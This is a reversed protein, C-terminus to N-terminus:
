TKFYRVNLRRHMYPKSQFALLQESPKTKGAPWTRRRPLKGHVERTRYIRKKFHLKVCSAKELRTQKTNRIGRSDPNAERERSRSIKKEAMTIKKQSIAEDKPEDEGGETDM